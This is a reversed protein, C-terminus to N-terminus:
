SQTIVIKGRARRSRQREIAEDVADFPLCTDLVVRIGDRAVAQVVEGLRPAFPKVYIATAAVGHAAAVAADPPGVPTM